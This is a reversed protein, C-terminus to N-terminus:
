TTALGMSEVAFKAIRSDIEWDAGAVGVGGICKGDVLIPVGGEMATWRTPGAALALGIAHGIDLDQDAAGKATTPRRTSAACVAKTTSSHITHFLGGDMRELAIIHGGADVVACSIAVQADSALELAATMIKKAGKHTLRKDDAFYGESYEPM